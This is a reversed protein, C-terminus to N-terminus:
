PKMIRTQLAAALDDVTLELRFTTGGLRAEWQIPEVELGMVEDTFEVLLKEDEVEVHAVEALPIRTRRLLAGFAIAEDDITLRGAGLSSWAGDRYELREFPGSWLVKPDRTDFEVAGERYAERLTREIEGSLENEHGALPLGQAIRHWDGLDHLGGPRLAMRANTTRVLRLQDGVQDFETGCARCLFGRAGSEKGVGLWHLRDPPILRGIHTAAFGYDDPGKSDLLTVGHEDGYYDAQCLSCAMNGSGPELGMAVQAWEDPFLCDYRDPPPTVQRRRGDDLSDFQARCGDCEWVEESRGSQERWTSPPKSTENHVWEGRQQQFRAGCGDCSYSKKAPLLGGGHLVGIRCIPCYRLPNGNSQRHLVGVRCVPCARAPTKRPTILGERCCPCIGPKLPKPAELLGGCGPCERREYRFQRLRAQRRDLAALRAAVDRVEPEITFLARFAAVSGPRDDLKLALGAEIADIVKPDLDPRVARLSILPAGAARDTAPLPPEGTFLAYATACLAYLDTGPGRRARESMQEIPAYGPTFQVTHQVTLDAHWERASGFDILTVQGEPSVLINSPKLDRHLLGRQHLGELIDLVGFVIDLVAEEEMRGESLLIRQLSQAHGVYDTVFYATGRDQFSARCPLVGALRLDGLLRGEQVFQHRLRQATAPGLEALSLDGSELRRAGPPALEKIVCADGRELDHGLYTIGFGGRGLLHRVEFRRVLVVGEDLPEPAPAM